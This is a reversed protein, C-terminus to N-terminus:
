WDGQRGDAYPKLASRAGDLPRRAPAPRAVGGGGPPARRGPAPAPGRVRHAARRPAQGAPPLAQRRAQRGGQAELGGVHRGRRPLGGPPPAQLRLVRWRGDASQVACRGSPRLGPEAEAWSWVLGALRQDELALQDFGTLDVGCRTLRGATELTIGEDPTGVNATLQTSDEYYRILKADYKAREITPDCDPFDRYGRPREEERFSWDFLLSQWASGKGCGSVALVQKGAARIDNRTLAMPLPVCAQDGGPPRYILDGLKEELQAAAVDHGQSGLDDELYLMLVQGPNARLWGAVTDLVVTFEKETTCGAHGEEEGRAHCVVPAFGGGSGSPFWHLDLEISRVGQNLQDVIRIQQNDDQTSLTPGMEAVSNFSNHTGVWPLNRMEVDGALDYQLALARQVWEPDQATAEACPVLLALLTLLAARRM